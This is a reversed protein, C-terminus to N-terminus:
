AASIRILGVTMDDSRANRSRAESLIRDAMKQMDDEWSSCLLDLLWVSEEMGPAIGDSFMVIVDGERLDFCIEEANIERTIGIPMSNSVVRFLNGDRLIYSPAAGSKIFGAHGNLLDVELLDVTAFCESGKNRILNSLMEISLDKPNYACLMKELFGGCIRSTLAADRGSGMGDSILTYFYDEGSEFSSIHDGNVTEGEKKETASACTAAFRRTATMTMSVNSTGDVGDDVDFRPTGFTVSCLNGFAETLADASMRMHAMDVDGAVITRRRHGFVAVSGARLDMYRMAESVKESLEEDIEFEPDEETAREVLKAMVEYDTAAVANKDGARLQETLAACALTLKAGIGDARPCEKQMWQPLDERVASGRQQLTHALSDVALVMRSHEQRWCRQQMLCNACDGMLTDTTVRRLDYIGPKRLRRSLAELLDSLDHMTSTLATLRATTREEKRSLALAARDSKGTPSAPPAFLAIDPLFHFQVLPLFLIVGVILEPALRQLADIGEIYFGFTIATVGAAVTATLSGVQWLLGSVLGVAAFLPAYALGCGLGCIMGTMMGRLMGATNSIYLTILFAAVMALSYGFATWNQMAFVTTGLMAAVGAEYYVTYRKRKELVGLFLATLLPVLALEFLVGFMDYYLFGDHLVRYLGSLFVVTEGVAIRHLLPEEFYSIRRRRQTRARLFTLGLRLALLLTYTLFAPLAYSGQTLAAVAMGLYSFAVQERAACLLAIGFPYSGMAFQASAFLFSIVGISLGRGIQRLSQKWDISQATGAASGGQPIFYNAAYAKVFSAARRALERFDVGGQRNEREM